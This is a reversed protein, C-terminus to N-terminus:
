EEEEKWLQIMEDMEEWMEYYSCILRIAHEVTLVHRRWVDEYELVYEYVDAPQVSCTDIFDLCLAALNHLNELLTEHSKM